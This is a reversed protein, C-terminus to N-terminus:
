PVDRADKADAALQTQPEVVRLTVPQELSRPLDDQPRLVAALPPDLEMGSGPGAPADQSPDRAELAPLLGLLEHAPRDQGRPIGEGLRLVSAPVDLVEEPELHHGVSAAGEALQHGYVLVGRHLHPLDVTTPLGVEHRDEQVADDLHPFADHNAVVADDLSLITRKSM